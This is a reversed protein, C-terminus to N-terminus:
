PALTTASAPSTIQGAMEELISETANKPHPAQTIPRGVVLYNAGQAMAQSPTLIRDQDNKESGSPRIGPTIIQFDPGCAKRILAAEQASSVVGGLGSSKAMQALHQVYSQHNEKVWLASQLQEPSLSTLLTVAIILPEPTGQALAVDKGAQAAAEMMDPGGQAHVNLFNIGQSVLAATAKSVTNPIDHLKLDLFVGGGLAKLEQVFPMGAQYFLQMGVKFTVGLPALQKVLKMAEQPSDFDLAIILQSAIALGKPSVPKSFDNSNGSTNLFTM